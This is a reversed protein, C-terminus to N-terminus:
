WGGCRKFTEAITESGDVVSYSEYAAATMCVHNTFIRLKRGIPLEAFYLAGNRRTIIGHEQSVDSVVYGDLPEGRIDAVLGYGYEEFSEALGRDKSLALGGADIVAWPGNVNHSVVTALVSGALASLSCLGLKVMTLDQFLYVGARIETVGSLDRARYLNPTCGVSVIQCDFGAGHLAAAADVAANREVMSWQEIERGSAGAYAKGVFALVGRFAGVGDLIRAIDILQPAEPAVGCRGRDADIEILAGIQVGQQICHRALAEATVATDLLVKLDAGRRILESVRDFKDPAVAVAYLIDAFGAEFFHEAERLTSVTIAGGHGATAMRIIDPSKVTKVHPRFGVGLSRVRANAQAINAALRGRDVIFAPTALTSLTSGEIAPM